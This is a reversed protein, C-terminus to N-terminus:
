LYLDFRQGQYTLTVKGDQIDEVQFQGIFEGESVYFTKQAKKDEIIAQPTDGSIIGMLNIDKLLESGMVTGTAGLSSQGYKESFIQRGKIGDLYFDFPKFGTQAKKELELLDVPNTRSATIKGFGFMPYVFAFVLYLCGAFLVAKLINEGSFFRRKTGAFNGAAARGSLSQASLGEPSVPKIGSAGVATQPGKKQGKILRLLREEPSINDKM